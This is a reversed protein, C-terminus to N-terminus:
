RAVERVRDIFASFKEASGALIKHHQVSKLTFLRAFLGDGDEPPPWFALAVCPRRLEKNKLAANKASMLLADVSYKKQLTEDNCAIIVGHFDPEIEIGGLVRELEDPATFHYGFGQQDSLKSIDAEIRARDNSVIAVRIQPVDSIMKCSLPDEAVKPLEHTLYHLFDEFHGRFIDHGALFERHKPVSVKDTNLVTSFRFVPIAHERAIQFQDFDFGPPSSPTKGLLQVFALCDRIILKAEDHRIPRTEDERLAPLVTWGLDELHSVLNRRSVRFSPRNSFSEPCTALYIHKGVPCPVIDHKHNTFDDLRKLITKATKEIDAEDATHMHTIIQDSLGRLRGEGVRIPFVRLTRLPRGDSTKPEDPLIRGLLLHRMASWEKLTWFKAAYEKSICPIVLTQPCSYIGSFYEESQGPLIHAFDQFRYFFVPNEQDTTRLRENLYKAVPEILDAQEGAVSFAIRYSKTPPMTSM